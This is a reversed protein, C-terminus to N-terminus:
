ERQLKEIETVLAAIHSELGARDRRARELRAEWDRLRPGVFRDLRIWGARFGAAAYAGASIALWRRLEDECNPNSNPGPSYAVDHGSATLMQRVDNLQEELQLCRECASWGGDGPEVGVRWRAVAIAFM